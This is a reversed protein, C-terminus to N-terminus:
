VKVGARGEFERLQELHAQHRRSIRNVVEAAPPSLPQKGADQYLATLERLHRIIEPLLAHLDLYHLHGTHINGGTPFVAGRCVEIAEVLWALHEREDAIMQQVVHLEGASAWSVFAGSEALRPLFSRQEAAFLRNLIRISREQLEDM